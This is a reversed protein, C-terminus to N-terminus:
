VFMKCSPPLSLTGEARGTDGVGAVRRGGIGGLWVAGARDARSLPSRAAGHECVRVRACASRGGIVDGVVVRVREAGRKPM